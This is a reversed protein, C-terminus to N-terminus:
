KDLARSSVFVQVGVFDSVTIERTVANSDFPSPDSQLKMVLRKIVLQPGM